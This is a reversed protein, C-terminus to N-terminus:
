GNGRQIGRLWKVTENVGETLGTPGVGLNEFTLKMPVPFDSTMRHFRGLNIPSPGGLRGLFEGCYAFAKLLWLPVRRVPKKTLVVSFADLWVTSPIPKDGVYFTKGEVVSRDVEAIRVLQYVVNGVYGYSRIVDLGTPHMYARMAIYRWIARAFSPHYPGWVNTPRVITWREGSSRLIREAKVKSEGYTTSPEYVEPDFDDSAAGAVLQTSAHVLLPAPVFVRCAAILNEVGDFNVKMDEVSGHLSAHAALNYILTPRVTSVCQLLRERDMLDCEQWFARHSDLIPERKDLNVVTAGKEILASILHTGIFGSGGTVM